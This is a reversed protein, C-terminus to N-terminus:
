ILNRIVGFLLLGALYGYYFVTIWRKEEKKERRRRVDMFLVALLILGTSFIFPNAAFAGQIDGEMLSLFLTTIGCGPCLWGTMKRFMCPIALGTNRIWLAYAIGIGVLILWTREMKRKM